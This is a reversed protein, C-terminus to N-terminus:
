AAAELEEDDAELALLVKRATKRISEGVRMLDAAEGKLFELVAPFTAVETDVDLTGLVIFAVAEAEVAARARGIDTPALADALSLAVARAREAPNGDAKPIVKGLKDAVYMLRAEAEPAADFEDRLTQAQPKEALPEGDTQSVDFTSTMRFGVCRREGDTDRIIIPAYIRIGKEGKRVQRAHDKQWDKYGACRTATPMQCRILMLNNFSYRHFRGIQNLWAKWEDVDALNAVGDELMTSFEAVEAERKAKKAERQAPTLTKRAKKKTTKTM